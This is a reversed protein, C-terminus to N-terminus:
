AGEKVNIKFQRFGKRAGIYTGVMAPTILTGESDKTRTATITFNPATVKGADGILTLLEAKASDKERTWQTAEASANNYRKVLTEIAANGTADLVEETADQHLDIVFEADKQYDIQPLIGKDLNEWFKAVAKRLAAGVKRDRKRMITKVTNGGVLAVILCWNKDAVEMQHQVQIEIHAPAEDETWKSRYIFGDVNKIEMLGTGLEENAVVEFDFSSGMRIEPITMYANLKRIKWGLDEAVGRAIAEELRRGWVMRENEEFPDTVMGAKILGLEYASMYPNRDIGPLASSETSNINVARLELWADKNIPTIKTTM